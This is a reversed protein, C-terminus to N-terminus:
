NPLDPPPTLPGNSIISSDARSSEPRQTVPLESGASRGPKVISSGASDNRVSSSNGSAKRAAQYLVVRKLAFQAAQVIDENEAEFKPSGEVDIECRFKKKGGPNGLIEYRVVGLTNMRTEIEKWGNFPAPMPVPPKNGSSDVSSAREIQDDRLAPSQAPNPLMAPPPVHPTGAVSAASAIPLSDVLRPPLSDPLRDVPEPKTAPVSAEPAPTPPSNPSTRFTSVTEDPWRISIPPPSSGPVGPAAQAANAVPAAVNGGPNSNATSAAAGAAQPQPSTASVQSDSKPIAGPTAPLTAPLEAPPTDAITGLNIVTGVQQKHYLYNVMTTMNHENMLGGGAFAAFGLFMLTMLKKM